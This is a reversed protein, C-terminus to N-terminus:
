RWVAAAVRFWNGGLILRVDSDPYGRELLHAAIEAMQSPHAFDM